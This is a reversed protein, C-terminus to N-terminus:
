AEGDRGQLLTTPFGYALIDNPVEGTRHWREIGNRSQRMIGEFVVKNVLAKKPKPDSSRGQGDADAGGGGVKVVRVVEVFRAREM